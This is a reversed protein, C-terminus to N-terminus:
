NQLSEIVKKAELGTFFAQSFLVKTKQEKNISYNITVSLVIENLDSSYFLDVIIKSNQEKNKSKIISIIDYINQKYSDLLLKPYNNIDFKKSYFKNKMWKNTSESYYNKIIYLNTLIFTTLIILYSVLVKVVIVIGIDSSFMIPIFVDFFRFVTLFVDFNINFVKYANYNTSITFLLCIFVYYGITFGISSLVISTTKHRCHSLIISFNSFYSFILAAIFSSLFWLISTLKYKITLIIFIYSLPFSLVVFILLSMLPILIYSRKTTIGSEKYEQYM